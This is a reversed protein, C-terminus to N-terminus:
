LITMDQCECHLREVNLMELHYGKILALGVEEQGDHDAAEVKGNMMFDYASQPLCSQFKYM